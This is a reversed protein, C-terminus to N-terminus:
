CHTVLGGVSVFTAPNISSCSVGVTSGGVIYGGSANMTSGTSIASGSLIVGSAIIAGSVNIGSGVFQGSLNIVTSSNVQYAASGACSGTNCANFSGGSQFSNLNLNSTSFGVASVVAGQTTVAGNGNVLFNGGNGVFNYNTGIATSVFSNSGSATVTSFNVACTTCIGQPTNLTISTGSPTVTIENTTGVINLAGTLSNLSSIGGTALSLWSTGNFVKEAGAGNDFYMAGAHFTDGSTISPVGTSTGTQVYHLATFSNAYGGGGPAQLCNYLVCSSTALFGGDAQAYGNKFWATQTASVGTIILDQAANVWTFNSSAGFAGANNYQIQTTLGAPTGGSGGGFAIWATGNYYKLSGGSYTDWSIAGPNFADGSTLTPHGSGGASNFSGPQVYNLYTGSLAYMGGGQAQICNYLTCTSPNAEFGKDASMFGTSVNMGPATASTATANLFTNGGATMWTLNASGGFAGSSNFQIDTSSGGPSGSGGGLSIWASGNYVKEATSSTDWYLAGAHFTDGSTPSPAGSSNGSQIYNSATFSLAAMGGTFASSGSNTAQFCNYLTCNITSWGKDSIGYGTAVYLGYSTSSSATVTLVKLSNNWVFNANGGFVGANNYQVQTTAGGPTGSGGTGLCAWITGNYLNECNLDDDYYITGANIGGNTVIPNTVTAITGAAPPGISHGTNVYGGLYTPMTLTTASTVTGTPYLTGATLSGAEVGGAPVGGGVYLANISNYGPASSALGGEALVYVNTFLGYNENPPIPAGCSGSTPMLPSLGVWLVASNSGFNALGNLPLPQQVPNGDIDLCPSGNYPNYTVPAINIYGGATNASNQAINLGRISAGDTASNFGQWSGGTTSSLFGGSSQIYGGASVIGPTGSVGTVTLTQTAKNFTFNGSADFSGATNFQVYTSSGAASGGGGGGGGGGSSTSAAAGVVNNLGASPILNGLQDFVAFSYVTGPTLWIAARGSADLTIPNSNATFLSSTTFTAVSTGPCSSGGACSYVRGGSLPVGNNDTFQVNAWPIPSGTQACAMGTLTATIVLKFFKNM